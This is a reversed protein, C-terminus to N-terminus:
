TLYDFISSANVLVQATLERVLKIFRCRRASCWEEQKFNRGHKRWEEDNAQRKRENSCM